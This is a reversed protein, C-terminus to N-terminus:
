EGSAMVPEECVGEAGSANKMRSGSQCARRLVERLAEVVSDRDLFCDTRPHLSKIYHTMREGIEREASESSETPIIAVRSEDTNTEALLRAGGVGLVIVPTGLQMAESLACGGEERLGTFLVAASECVMRFMEDREVWGRFDVRDRVNLQDALRELDKREVGDAVFVLRVEPDAYRLARIALRPGKRPQLRSPFLIYPKRELGDPRAPVKQLAARNIIATDGQLNSPLARRTNATEAIRFESKHWTRRVAPLRSILRVLAAKILEGIVGKFGLYKWMTRPTLTAGGVPGWIAPAKFDAVPSPLWYSGYSVHISAAYDCTRELQRGVKSAERLWLIYSLFELKPLWGSRGLWSRNWLFSSSRSMKVEIFRLRSDGARRQWDALRPFENSAVLVDVDAVELLSEVVGWAAGPESGLDPDITFAVALLRPRSSHM